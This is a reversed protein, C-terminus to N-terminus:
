GRLLSVDDATADPVAASSPWSSAWASSSRPPRWSWCSSCSSRARRHRRAHPRLHRLHPQRRQAHARRVHAHGAPQAPHAAGVAGICFVLAGLVLYSSPNISPWRDRAGRGREAEDAEVARRGRRPRRDDARTRAAARLQRAARAMVVAGIVAITLLGATIEFAFIWDTFVVQGLQTVNAASTPSRAAGTVQGRQARAQVRRRVRARAVGAPGAGAVGALIRQGVLPEHGLDEERDVGLLMIVFLILVVIAGTYVIVQVAALLQADQELFLVAVGFLTAVLSLASHVPNRSIVVGVAGCWCSPRASPSSPPTSWRLAGRVRRRTTPPAPDTASPRAGRRWRPRGGPPRDAMSDKTAQDAEPARVGYGLEGSWAVRGELAAVGSPATARMWASTHQTRARGGTRGRCTSPSATTASWCSTRPTSPTAAPQHLLVRVAQDRHHGRDPLGRRVPRLPHLAPLQDRLRLRLARGALGPRGVPNDAGRVYICRAPCVGACLECGICKEM